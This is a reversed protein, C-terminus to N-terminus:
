KITPLSWNEQGFGLRRCTSSIGPVQRNPNQLCGWTEQVLLKKKGGPDSVDASEDWIDAIFLGLIM